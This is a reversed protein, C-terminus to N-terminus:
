SPHARRRQAGLARYRHGLAGPLLYEALINGARHTPLGMDHLLEDVCHLQYPGFDYGRTGPLVREQWELRSDIQSEMEEPKPLQMRGLFVESLWHASIEMSLLNNFLQRFGIFGLGEVGPAVIGRYLRLRGAEDHVPVSSDLFPLEKRHGTAFVVVDARVEEGSDLLLGDETFASVRALKPRIRGTRVYRPYRATLVGAHALDTPLATRPLLSRPLRWMGGSFLVDAQILRWAADKARQPLRDIGRVVAPNHYTPLLSEGLRTFLVWKYTLLRLAVREPIMWNAKRQVLTVSRAREAARSALDLASKGGGVVVVRKGTFLGPESADNSHVVRGRYERRGPLDPLAPYHHAGSAVVVFDFVEAEEPGGPDGAPRTRVTWGSPGRELRTVKTATRVRDLVGFRKAYARLYRQSDAASAMHLRNPLDAFEFIRRVSQNHLGAYCGGETWLGGVDRRLDFVTVDFGDERLVKAAVIGGPGAGVVCARM